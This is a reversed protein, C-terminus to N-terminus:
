RRSRLAWAGLRIAIWGAVFPVVMSLTGTVYFPWELQWGGEGAVLSALHQNLHFTGALVGLVMFMSLIMYIVAGFSSAIKAANPNHFQPYVAGLGVATAAVGASIDLMIIGATLSQFLSEGVLLNSSWILAQGIVIVPAMGGLWKGALFTEMSIPAQLMQWFNRGELSVAPFLFRGGLAVVVFGCAALNFYYLGVQGFLQEDAAIEFYKYNVLYIIIIAVVVLLQSWQSADRLFVRQDKAVLHRLASLKTAGKQRLSALQEDISDRWDGARERMWDRFRALISPGNRGEQAKSFGRAYYTRHTWVMVVYAAAPTLYLMGLSWLDPSGSGFLLPVIVDMCWQSPLYASSPASLLNLMESISEFSDPNLLREPRMARVAVFLGAFALVGFILMADRTRSASLLNTVALAILAALATPLAVFPLLVGILGAYYSAGAGMGVGTAIFIPLGFLIVIWSSQALSELYRSGVLSDNDIPKAMLFQLDDALYFTTFVTVINSFVLLALFVLFSISLLRQVLLEGVPQIGLSQEVVWLSGQYLGIWFIISLVFFLPARLSSSQESRLMGRASRLKIGILRRIM